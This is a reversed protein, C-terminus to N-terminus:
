RGKKSSKNQEALVKEHKRLLLLVIPIPTNIFTDWDWSFEKICVYIITELWKQNRIAQSKPFFNGFDREM